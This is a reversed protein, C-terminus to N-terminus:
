LGNFSEIIMIRLIHLHRFMAESHFSFCKGCIFLVLKNHLSITLYLHSHCHFCLNNSAQDCWQYDDEAIFLSDPVMTGAICYCFRLFLVKYQPFSANFSEIFKPQSKKVYVVCVNMINYAYLMRYVSTSEARHLMNAAVILFTQNKGSCKPSNHIIISRIIGDVKIYEDFIVASEILKSSCSDVWGKLESHNPIM